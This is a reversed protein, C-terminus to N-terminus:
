SATSKKKRKDCKKVEERFNLMAKLSKVTGILVLKLKKYTNLAVIRM